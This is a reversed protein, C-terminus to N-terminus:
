SLNFGHGGGRSASCNIASAAYSIVEVQRDEQNVGRGRGGRIPHLRSVGYFGKENDRGPLEIVIDTM